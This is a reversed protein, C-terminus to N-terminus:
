KMRLTVSTPLGQLAGREALNLFRHFKPLYHGCARSRTLCPCKGKLCSVWKLSCGAYICYWDKELRGKHKEQLKGLLTNQRKNLAHKKKVSIATWFTNYALWQFFRRGSLASRRGATAWWTAGAAVRPFQPSPFACSGVTSLTTCRKALM